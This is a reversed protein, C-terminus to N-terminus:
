TIVDGQDSFGGSDLRRALAEFAAEIERMVDGGHNVIQGIKVVYTAAGGGGGKTISVHETGGDGVGILTPRRATISGGGGFWGGWEPVRGGHSMGSQARLGRNISGTLGAAYLNMGGQVAGGPLGRAGSVGPNLPNIKMFPSGPNKVHNVKFGSRIGGPFWGAGGNPNASSTGFARGNLIMYVHGASAVTNIGHPDYGPTGWGMFASAVMPSGLLGAAGLVASTAGSCDFGTGTVGGGSHRTGASPHGISGHGGGWAYPYHMADIANAAMIAKALPSGGSMGGSLDLARAPAVAAPNRTRGPVRGGTALGPM